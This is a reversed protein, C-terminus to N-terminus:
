KHEEKSLASSIGDITTCLDNIIAMVQKRGERRSMGNPLFHNFIDAVQREISGNEVTADELAFKQACRNSCFIQDNEAMEKACFQCTTM